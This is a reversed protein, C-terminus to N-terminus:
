LDRKKLLAYAGYIFIFTWVSVIAVDKFAVAYSKTFGGMQNAITKVVGLRSGPEKILNSM